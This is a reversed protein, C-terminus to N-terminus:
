IHQSPLPSMTSVIFHCPSMDGEGEGGGRGVVVVAVVVLQFNHFDRDLLQSSPVLLTHFNSSQFPCTKGYRITNGM